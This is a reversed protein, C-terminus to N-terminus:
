NKDAGVKITGSLLRGGALLCIDIIMGLVNDCSQISLFACGLLLNRDIYQRFTMLVGITAALSFDLELFLRKTRM